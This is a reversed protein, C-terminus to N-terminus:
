STALMSLNFPEKYLGRFFKIYEEKFDKLLLLIDGYIIAVAVVAAIVALFEVPCTM